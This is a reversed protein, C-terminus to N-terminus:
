REEAEKTVQSVTKYYEEPIFDTIQVYGRNVQEILWEGANIKGSNIDNMTKEDVSYISSIDVTYTKKDAM